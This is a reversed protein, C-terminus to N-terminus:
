EFIVILESNSYIDKKILNIFNKLNKWKIIIKYHYQNYKKFWTNWLIIENKNESNSEELKNYIKNIYTKAKEKDKNRYEITALECFPPYNFSKREKLTKVFFDKYNDNIISNVVDNEPIFTQIIFDTKQWLRSWRWILQKINSFVREETNYKAIQLEQELLIVGILWVKEFNFWTTIMKTWIIIDAKEINDLAEKKTKKNKVIDTDLRYIKKDKYINKITDEIQKTWVWVKQLEESWCKDCKKIIKKSYWCSHCVMNDWHISMSVDCNKCKHLNNCKSCILSSYEWRKNLYLINKKNENINEDIYKILTNSIYKNHKSSDQNLNVRIM